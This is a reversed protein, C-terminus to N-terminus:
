SQLRADLIDHFLTQRLALERPDIMHCGMRNM